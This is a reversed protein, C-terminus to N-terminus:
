KRGSYSPQRTRQSQRNQQSSKGWNRTAFALFLTLVFAAILPAAVEGRRLAPSATAWGPSGYVMGVFFAAIVAPLALIIGKM